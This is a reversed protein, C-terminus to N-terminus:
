VLYVNVEKWSDKIAAIINHNLGKNDVMRTATAILAEFYEPYTCNQSIEELTELALKVSFDLYDMEEDFSLHSLKKLTLAWAKNGVASSLHPDLEKLEKIANYDGYGAQPDNGVGKIGIFGDGPFLMHRLSSASSKIFINKALKFDDDVLTHERGLSKLRVFLAMLDSYMENLGGSDRGSYDLGTAQGRKKGGIWQTVGHSLEHATIDDQTFRNFIKGDGDGFHMTNTNSSFFANCYGRLWNVFSVIPRDSANDAENQYLNVLKNLHYDFSNYFSLTKEIGEYAEKAAQNSTTKKNVGDIKLNIPGKVELQTHSATYVSNPSYSPNIYTKVGEVIKQLLSSSSSSSDATSELITKKPPQHIIKQIKEIKRCAKETLHGANLCGNLTDKLSGEIQKALEGYLRQYKEKKEAPASDVLTNLEKVMNELITRGLVGKCTHNKSVPDIQKETPLTPRFYSVVNM